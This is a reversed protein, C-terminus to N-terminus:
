AYRGGAKNRSDYKRSSISQRESVDSYLALLAKSAPQDTAHILHRWGLKNALLALDRNHEEIREKYSERISDVDPHLWENGPHHGKSNLGEFPLQFKVRGSYPLKLEAPDLIQVLWVKLKLAALRDFTEKQEEIPSLFDSFCILAAHPTVHLNAPLNDSNGAKQELQQALFQVTTRASSPPRGSGALAIKEGGRLLLTALALAIVSARHHKSCSSWPSMWDMGPDGATWLWLSQATEREKQRIFVGSNDATSGAKASRRWDISRPTDGPNYRRYQWFEDGQGPHRRGHTGQFVTAAVREAEIQLPSLTSALKEAETERTTLLKSM